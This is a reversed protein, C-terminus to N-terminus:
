GQKENKEAIITANINLKKLQEIQKRANEINNFAGTQVKYIVNQSSTDYPEFQCYRLIANVISIIIKQEYKVLMQFDSINSLFCLEIIGGSVGQQWANRIERYYDKFQYNEGNVRNYFMENDYHRSKVGRPMFYKNLSKIIDLDLTIDKEGAPVIIEIGNAKNNTSSNLHLTYGFKYKYTHGQLLNDKYNNKNGNTHVKLGKDVLMKVIEKTMRKVVTEETTGQGVAGCDGDGHGSFFYLDYNM